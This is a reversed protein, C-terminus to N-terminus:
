VGSGPGGGLEPVGTLGLTFSVRGPAVSVANATAHYAGPAQSYRDVLGGYDSSAIGVYVGVSGAAATAPLLMHSMVGVHM